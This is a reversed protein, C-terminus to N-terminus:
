AEGYSDAFRNKSVEEPASFFQECDSTRDESLRIEFAAV